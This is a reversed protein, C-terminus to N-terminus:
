ASSEALAITLVLSYGLVLWWPILGAAWCVGYALAVVWAGARLVRTPTAAQPVPRNTLPRESVRAPISSRTVEDEQAEDTGEDEAQATASTVCRSRAANSGPDM